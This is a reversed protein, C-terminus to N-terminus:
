RARAREASLYRQVLASAFVGLLVFPLSQLVISVFVVALENLRGPLSVGLLISRSM